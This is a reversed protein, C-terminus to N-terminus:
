RRHRMLYKGLLFGCFACVIAVALHMFPTENFTLAIM